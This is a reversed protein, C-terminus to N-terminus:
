CVMQLKFLFIQFSILTGRHGGMLNVVKELINLFSLRLAKKHSRFVFDTTGAQNLRDSRLGVFLHTYWTLNVYKRLLAELIQNFFLFLLIELLM